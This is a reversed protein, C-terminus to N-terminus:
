WPWVEDPLTWTIPAQIGELSQQLVRGCHRCVFQAFGGTPAVILDWKGLVHQCNPDGEILVDYAMQQGPGSHPFRKYMEM